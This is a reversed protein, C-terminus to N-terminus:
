NEGERQEAKGVGRQSGRAGQEAEGDRGVDGEGGDDEDVETANLPEGPLVSSGVYKSVIKYKLPVKANHFSKKQVLM